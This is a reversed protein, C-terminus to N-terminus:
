KRSAQKLRTKAEHASVSPVEVSKDMEVKLRDNRWSNLEGDCLEGPDAAEEYAADHLKENYLDRWANHVEGTNVSSKILKTSLLARIRSERLTRPDIQPFERSLIQALEKSSIWRQQIASTRPFLSTPLLRSASRTLLM